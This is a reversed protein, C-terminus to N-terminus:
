VPALRKRLDDLLGPQQKLASRTAGSLAWPQLRKTAFSLTAADVVAAAHATAREPGVVVSSSAVLEAVDNALLLDSAALESFGFDIMWVEGDSALFINALRLDRHAIRHQHLHAIQLWIATLVEDTLAAPELGDISKGDVAEYALVMANPEATAVARLRPTRVGVDRAALALFAEHEVARRLSSFPREDGLNRRQVYRFLRFLLDASREDHGLAKVFYREGDDGVGFYPTSGRADVSAPELSAMPLGNLALGDSITQATPRRTPAGLLVLIAAGAVWGSLLAELSDFSLASTAFRTFALAFVLVWAWRRWGRSLWPAAATVVATAVGVGVATPFHPDTAPGLGTSLKTVLAGDTTDVLGDLLLTLAAGLVGAALVTGVMRWGSRYLTLLLGFVLVAIGLIRGAVVLINVMWKPIAQLGRLLDSAFTVLTNGFLWEVLLLVLVLVVAVVLRLVDSPSRTVIEGRTAVDDQM